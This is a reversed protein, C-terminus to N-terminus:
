DNMLWGVCSVGGHQGRWTQFLRSHTSTGEVLEGVMRGDIADGILRWWGKKLSASVVEIAFDSTTAPGLVHTSPIPAM